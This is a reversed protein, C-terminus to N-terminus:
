HKQDNSVECNEELREITITQYAFKLGNHEFIEMIKYMVDEKVRLWEDWVTSKSFASVLISVGLTDFEDLYVLLTRKVGLADEKSVLKPSKKFEEKYDTKDTAIDPHTQLMRRIEKVAKQLAKRDAEYTVTLKMKIRRGVVRKSWNLVEKNALTANPIAILANDPTRITTVRLGIEVVSGLRGDVEILDGQSFIESVLISITGFFNSLSERAALAVAFGGIGLGSLVATLNVGAFHMVFLFGIIIVIFNVIKITINFLESKVKKQSQDIHELKVRAISNLTRFIIYTIIMSYCIGFVRASSADYSFEHYIFLILQLNILLLLLSIPARIDDLVEKAYSGVVRMRLLVKEVAGILVKRVFMIVLTICLMLLLKTVSLGYPLLMKNLRGVEPIDEIYLAPKLLHLKAYKNRRYLKRTNDSFYRLIDSNIELLAFFERINQQVQKILRNKPKQKLIEEYEHHRNDLKGIEQWGQAFIDHMRKEFSVIDDDDLAKFIKRVMRNQLKLLRYSKLQVEDRLVAEKNGRRKNLAIMKELLFIKKDLNEIDSYLLKKNLLIRHFIDSYLADRKEILAKMKANSITNDRSEYILQMQKEIWPHYEDSAHLAATGATFLSLVYVVILSKRLFNM